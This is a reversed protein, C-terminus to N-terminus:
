DASADFFLAPEGSQVVVGAIGEGPPATTGVTMSADVGAAAALRLGDSGKDHLFVAAAEAGLMDRAQATAMQLVEEPNLTAVLAQTARNLGTLRGRVRRGDVARQVTSRIVDAHFPKTVYDFAGMRLAEIASEVSAYATLVIIEVLPWKERVQRLVEMGSMDPLMMDLVAVGIQSSGLAALADRGSTALVIEHGLPALCERVM